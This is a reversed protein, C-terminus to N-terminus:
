SSSSGSCLDTVLEDGTPVERGQHVVFAGDPRVDIWVRPEAGPVDSAGILATPMHELTAGRGLAIFWRDSESSQGTSIFCASVEKTWGSAGGDNPAWVSLVLNQRSANAVTWQLRIPGRDDGSSRDEHIPRVRHDASVTVGGAAAIISMLAVGAVRPRKGFSRLVAVSVLSIPLTVPFAVVMSVPILILLSIAAPVDIVTIRGVLVSQMTLWACFMALGILVAQVAVALLFRVPRNTNVATPAAAFGMGVGVIVGLQVFPGFPLDAWYTRLPGVHTGALAALSGGLLAGVLRVTIGGTLVPWATM